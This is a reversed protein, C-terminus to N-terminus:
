IDFILIENLAQYGYQGNKVVKDNTRGGFVALYKNNKLLFSSHDRRPAPEWGDKPKIKHIVLANLDGGRDAKSQVQQQNHKTSKFEEM